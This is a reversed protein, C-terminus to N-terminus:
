KRKTRRKKKIPSKNGKTKNKRKKGGGEAAAETSDTASVTGSKFAADIQDIIYKDKDNTKEIQKMDIKVSKGDLDTEFNIELDPKANSFKEFAPYTYNIAAIVEQSTSYNFKTIEHPEKGASLIIKSPPLSAAQQAASAAAQQAVQQGAAAAPAAPGPPAAAARDIISKALKGEIEGKQEEFGSVLQAFEEQLKKVSGEIKNSPAPAASM